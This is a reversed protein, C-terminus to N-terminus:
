KGDAGDFTALAMEFSEPAVRVTGHFPRDIQAIGVLVLAVLCTLSVIYLVHLRADEVGILCSNAITVVGGFILVLWLIGPLRFQSQLQRIRRHETMKALEALVQQLVVQESPRSVEIQTAARWLREVGEAGRPSVEDRTMASWEEAITVQAYARAAEQIESWQSDRLAGALRFVNVLANAEQEANIRADQFDEWVSTLMFALIVAYITGAVTIYFATADNAERRKAPSWRHRLILLLGVAVFVSAAIIVVTWLTLM